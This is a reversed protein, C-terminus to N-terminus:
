VGDCHNFQKLQVDLDPAIPSSVNDSSNTFFVLLCKLSVTPNKLKMVVKWVENLISRQDEEPPDEM